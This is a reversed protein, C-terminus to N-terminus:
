AASEASSLLDCVNQWEGNVQVLPLQMDQMALQTMAEIDPMNGGLLGQADREEYNGEGFYCKVRQCLPCDQQTWIIVEKAQNVMENEKEEEESRILFETLADAEWELRFSDPMSDLLGM